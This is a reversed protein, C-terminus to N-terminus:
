VRHLTIINTHNMYRLDNEIVNVVTKKSTGRDKISEIQGIIFVITTM